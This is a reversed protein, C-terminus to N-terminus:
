NDGRDEALLQDMEKKAARSKEAIETRLRAIEDNTGFGLQEVKNWAKDELEQTSSADAHGLLAHAVEHAILLLCEERTRNELQPSLYVIQSKNTPIRGNWGTVGCHPIFFWIGGEEITRYEENPLKCLVNMILLRNRSSELNNIAAAVVSNGGDIIGDKVLTRPERNKKM